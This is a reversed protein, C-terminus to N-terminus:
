HTIVARWYLASMSVKHYQILPQLAIMNGCCNFFVAVENCAFPMPLFCIPCDDKPPPQKFLSEDHLRAAHQKGEKTHKLACKVSCYKVDKRANCTKLGAGCEGCRAVTNLDDM